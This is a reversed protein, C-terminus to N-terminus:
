WNTQAVTLITSQPIRRGEIGVHVRDAKTVVTISYVAAWCVPYSAVLLLAWLPTFLPGILLLLTIM